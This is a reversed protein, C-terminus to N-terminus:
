GSESVAHDLGPPGFCFLTAEERYVQMNGAHVIQANYAVNGVDYGLVKLHVHSRDGDIGVIAHKVAADGKEDFVGLMQLGQDSFEPLDFADYM